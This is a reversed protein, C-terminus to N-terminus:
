ASTRPSIWNRPRAESSSMSRETEDVSRAFRINKSGHRGDRVNYEYGHWAVIHVDTESFKLGSTKETEHIVEEVKNIIKGQCCAAKIYATIKMLLSNALSLFGSKSIAQAIIKRDRDGFDETRGVYLNAM